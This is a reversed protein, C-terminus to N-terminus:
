ILDNAIIPDPENVSDPCSNSFKCYKCNNITPRSDPLDKQSALLLIEKLKTKTGELFIQDLASDGNLQILSKQFTEKTIPNKGDSYFLGLSHLKPDALGKSRNIAKQMLFYLAIQLWHSTKRAGTKVDFIGISGDPFTLLCDIIGFLNIGHFQVIPLQLECDVTGNPYIKQLYKILNNLSSTHQLKYKELFVSDSNESKFRNQLWLQRICSNETLFQSLTSPGLCSKYKKNLTTLQM